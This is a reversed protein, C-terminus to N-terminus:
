NKQIKKYIHILSSIILGWFFSQLFFAILPPADGIEVHWQQWIADLPFLLIYSAWWCFKGFRSDGAMAVFGFLVLIYIFTM